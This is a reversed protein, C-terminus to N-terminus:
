LRLYMILGLVHRHEKIMQSLSYHSVLYLKQKKIKKMTLSHIFKKTKIKGLNYEADIPLLIDLIEELLEKEQILDRSLFALNYHINKLITIM